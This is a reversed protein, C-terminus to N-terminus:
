FNGEFPQLCTLGLRRWEAVVRNRDEIVFAAENFDIGAERILEPKVIADPRLDGDKRMLLRGKGVDWKVHNKIWDHTKRRSSERRGTCFIVNFYSYELGRILSVMEPIPEDPSNKYFEEWEGPDSPIDKFRDDVKVLVGDIDCVVVNKSM